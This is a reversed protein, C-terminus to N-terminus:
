WINCLHEGGVKAKRAQADTMVGKPTSLIAVGMGGLVRPLRDRSVYVRLGPMSIRKLGTITKEEKGSTKFYIRFTGQKRNELIKYHRIYGEDKILRIIELKLRSAPIDVKEHGARSANRIRTLLDAIPDTMSM